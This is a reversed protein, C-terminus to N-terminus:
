CCKEEEEIVYIKIVSDVLVSGDSRTYPVTVSEIFNVIWERYERKKEILEYDSGNYAYIKYCSTIVNLVDKLKM